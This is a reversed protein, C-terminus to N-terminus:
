GDTIINLQKLLKILESKNKITGSFLTNQNDKIDITDLHIPEESNYELYYDQNLKHSYISDKIFGLSEIDEKDLYKVKIDKEYYKYNILMTTQNYTADVEGHYFTLKEWNRKSTNETPKYVEYEFGVHFEEITPTYYKSEM